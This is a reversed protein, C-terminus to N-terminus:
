VVVDFPAYCSILESERAIAPALERNNPFNLLYSWEECNEYPPFVSMVRGKIWKAKVLVDENQHFLNTSM